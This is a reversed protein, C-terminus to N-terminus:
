YRFTYIVIDDYMYYKNLVTIFSAKKKWGKGKKHQRGMIEVAIIRNEKLVILDPIRARTDIVRYGEQTYKEKIEQLKSEHKDSGNKAM